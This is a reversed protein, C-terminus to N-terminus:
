VKLKSALIWDKSSSKKDREKALNGLVVDEFDDMLAENKQYQEYDTLVAFPEGRKVIIIKKVKIDKSIKPMNGRLETAGVLITDEGVKLM